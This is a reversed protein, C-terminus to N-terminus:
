DLPTTTPVELALLEKWTAIQGRVRATEEVDLRGDNKRRAVELRQEIYSKLRMWTASDIEQRTLKFIEPENM